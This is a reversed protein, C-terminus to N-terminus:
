NWYFGLFSKNQAKFYLSVEMLQIVFQESIANHDVLFTHLGQQAGPVTSHESSQTANLLQQEGTSEMFTLPLDCLAPLACLAELCAGILPTEELQPWDFM